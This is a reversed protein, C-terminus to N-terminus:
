RDGKIAVEADAYLDADPAVPIYGPLPGHEPLQLFEHVVFPWLIALPGM